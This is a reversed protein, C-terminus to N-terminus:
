RIWLFPIEKSEEVKELEHHDCADLVYILNDAMKEREEDARKEIEYELERESQKWELFREVDHGDTKFMGRMRNLSDDAKQRNMKKPRLLANRAPNSEDEDGMDLPILRVLAKGAPIEVPVDIFL